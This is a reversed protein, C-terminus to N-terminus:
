YIVYYKIIYHLTSSLVPKTLDASRFTVGQAALKKASEGSVDRAVGVVVVTL